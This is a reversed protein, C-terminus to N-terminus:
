IVFMEFGRSFENWSGANNYVLPMWQKEWGNSPSVWSIMTWSKSRIDVENKAELRAILVSLKLTDYDFLKLKSETITM